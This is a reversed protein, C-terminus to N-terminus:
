RARRPDRSGAAFLGVKKNLRGFQGQGIGPASHEFPIIFLEAARRAGEALSRFLLPCMVGGRVTHATSRHIFVM